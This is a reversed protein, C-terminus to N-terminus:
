KVTQKSNLLLNYARITKIAYSHGSFSFANSVLDNSKTM